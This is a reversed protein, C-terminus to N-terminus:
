VTNQLNWHNWSQTSSNLATCIEQFASNLKFALWVIIRKTTSVTAMEKEDYNETWTCPFWVHQNVNM